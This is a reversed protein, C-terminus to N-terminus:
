RGPESRPLPRGPGPHDPHDEARRSDLTGTWTRAGNMWVDVPWTVTASNDTVVANRMPKLAPRRPRVRGPAGGASADAGDQRITVATRGGGDEGGSDIWRGVRHHVVLLVLVLRPGPPARQEHLVHLGVAVPHKFRWAKAYESMARALRRSDGVIGGLMSLMLPAKSYAQFSYSPGGYNADWM